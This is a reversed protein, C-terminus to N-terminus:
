QRYNLWTSRSFPCPQKRPCISEPHFCAARWHPMPLALCVLGATKVILAAANDHILRWLRLDHANDHRLALNCALQVQVLVTDDLRSKAWSPALGCRNEIGRLRRPSRTQPGSKAPTLQLTRRLYGIRPGVTRPRLACIRIIQTLSALATQAIMSNTAARAAM